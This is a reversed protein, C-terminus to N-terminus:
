AIFAGQAAAELGEEEVAGHGHKNGLDKLDLVSLRQFFRRCSSYAVIAAHQWHAALGWERLGGAVVARADICNNTPRRHHWRHVERAGFLDAAHQLRTVQNFHQLHGLIRALLPHAPADCVRWTPDRQHIQLVAVAPCFPLLASRVHLLIESPEQDEQSKPQKAHECQRRQWSRGHRKLRAGAPNDDIALLGCKRLQEVSQPHLTLEEAGQHDQHQQDSGQQKGDDGQRPNKEMPVEQVGHPRPAQPQTLLDQLWPDHAVNGCDGDGGKEQGNLLGGCIKDEQADPKCHRWNAEKRAQTLSNRTPADAPASRGKTGGASTRRGAPVCLGM